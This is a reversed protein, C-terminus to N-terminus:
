SGSSVDREKRPRGGRRAWARRQEASHKAMMVRIGKKGGKAGNEAHFCTKKECLSGDIPCRIERLGYRANTVNGGIRGAEQHTM